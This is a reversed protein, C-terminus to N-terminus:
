KALESLFGFVGDSRRIALVSNWKGGRDVFQVDLEGLTKFQEIVHPDFIGDGSGLVYDLELMGAGDCMECKEGGLYGSEICRSCKEQDCGCPTVNRGIRGSFGCRLCGIQPTSPKLREMKDISTWGTSDLLDWPLCALNPVLIRGASGVSSELWPASVLSYGTTAITRGNQEWPSQTDYKFKPTKLTFLDWQIRPQSPIVKTGLVTTSLGAALSTVFTRRSQM